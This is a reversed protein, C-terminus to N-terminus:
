ILFAPPGRPHHATRIFGALFLPTPTALIQESALDVLVTGTQAIYATQLSKSLLCEPCVKKHTGQEPPDGEHQTQLSVLSHDPHVASHQALAIQGALLAVLAWAM